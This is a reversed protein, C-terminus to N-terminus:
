RCFAVANVARWIGFGYALVSRVTAYPKGIPIGQLEGPVHLFARGNADIRPLLASSCDITRTALLCRLASSFRVRQAQNRGCKPGGDLGGFHPSSGAQRKWGLETPLDQPWSPSVGERLAQDTGDSIIDVKSVAEGVRRPSDYFAAAM